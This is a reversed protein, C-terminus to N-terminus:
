VSFEESQWAGDLSVLVYTKYGADIANLRAYYRTTAFSREDLRNKFETPSITHEYM